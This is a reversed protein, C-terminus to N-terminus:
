RLPIGRGDLVGSVCVCCPAARRLAGRPPTCPSCARHSSFPPPPSSPSWAMSRDRVQTVVVVAVVVEFAVSPQFRDTFLPFVHAAVVHTTGGDMGFVTAVRVACFLSLSPNFASVEVTLVRTLPTVWTDRNAATVARRQTVNASDLDVTRVSGAVPVERPRADFVVQIPM